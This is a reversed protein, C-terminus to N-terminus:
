NVGTKPDWNGVDLTDDVSWRGLRLDDACYRKLLANFQSRPMPEFGAQALHNSFYKGDNLFFGWKQLHCILTAFGVKSADRQRAFQSETFFVAGVAFGFVGGALEGDEGWVEVSHAHGAEHMAQYADIVDPTIWTLPLKGPRTEACGRMVDEFAQDFTVRFHGSRLRRRLNKEMHFETLRLAMRTSPAWWKYPRIHCLPFLGAKYGAYLTKVNLEPCIGALGDPNSLAKEPDPLPGDDRRFGLYYSVVLWLINPVGWLRPPKLSWLSGLILRRLRDAFSEPKVPMSGTSRAFNRATEITEGTISM